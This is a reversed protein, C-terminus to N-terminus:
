SSWSFLQKGTTPFWKIGGVIPIFQAEFAIGLMAAWSDGLWSTM